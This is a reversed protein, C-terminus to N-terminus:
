LVLGTVAGSHPPMKQLAMPVGMNGAGVELVSGELPRRRYSPYRSARPLHDPSVVCGAVTPGVGCRLTGGLACWHSGPRVTRWSGCFDKGVLCPSNVSLSPPQQGRHGSRRGSGCHNGM